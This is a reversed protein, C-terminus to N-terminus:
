NNGYKELLKDKHLYTPYFNNYHDYEKIANEGRDLIPVHKPLMGSAFSRGQHTAAKLVGLASANSEGFVLLAHESNRNLCAIENLLVTSVASYLGKGEHNEVVGSESRILTAADTLEVLDLRHETGDDGFQIAISAQEAVGASVIKKKTNGSIVEEMEAVAILRNKSNLMELIEDQTWNFPAYLKYLSDVTDDELTYARSKDVLHIDYGFEKPKDILSQPDREGTQLAQDKNLQCEALTHNDSKREDLNKGFYVLSMGAFADNEGGELPIVAEIMDLFEPDDSHAEMFGSNVVARMTIRSYNGSKDEPDSEGMMSFHPSAVAEDWEHKFEKFEKETQMAKHFFGKKRRFLTEKPPWFLGLSSTEGTKGRSHLPTDGGNTEAMNEAKQLAM